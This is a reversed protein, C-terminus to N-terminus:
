SVLAGGPARELFEAVAATDAHFMQSRVIRGDAVRYVGVEGEDFHSGAGDVGRARFLVAVTDQNGDIFVPDLALTEPTKFPGWAAIVSEWHERGGERGRYVGGYPLSEAEHIEVEEDYCSVVARVDLAEVADFLARVLEVMESM